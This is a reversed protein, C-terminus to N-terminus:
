KKELWDHDKPNAPVLGEFQEDTLKFVAAAVAEYPDLFVEGAEFIRLQVADEPLGMLWAEFRVRTFPPTNHPVYLGVMAIDLPFGSSEATFLNPYRSALQANLSKMDHRLSMFEYPVSEGLAYGYAFSLTGRGGQTKALDAAALCYGIQKESLLFSEKVLARESESRRSEARENGSAQERFAMYGQFSINLSKFLDWKLGQAGNADNVCVLKPTLYAVRFKRGLPDPNFCEAFDHSEGTFYGDVPPDVYTWQPLHSGVTTACGALGLVLLLSLGLIGHKM